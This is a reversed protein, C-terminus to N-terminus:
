TFSLFNTGPSTSLTGTSGKNPKPTLQFPHNKGRLSLKWIPYIDFKAALGSVLPEAPKVHKYSSPAAQLVASLTLPTALSHGSFHAWLQVSSGLGPFLPGPHPTLERTLHKAQSPSPM